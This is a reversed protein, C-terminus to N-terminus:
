KKYLRHTRKHYKKTKTLPANKRKTKLKYIKKGGAKKASEKEAKGKLYGERVDNQLYGVLAGTSLSIFFLVNITIIESFRKTLDYEGPNKIINKFPSMLNGFIDVVDKAGTEQYFPGEIFLAKFLDFGQGAIIVHEALPPEGPLREKFYSGTILSNLALFLTKINSLPDKLLNEIFDKFIRHTSGSEWQAVIFQKWRQYDSEKDDVYVINRHSGMARVKKECQLFDTKLIHILFEVFAINKLEAAFNVFKKPFISKSFYMRAGENGLIVGINAHILHVNNLVPILLCLLNRCHTYLLNVYPMLKKLM